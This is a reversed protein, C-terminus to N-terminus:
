CNLQGRMTPLCRTSPKPSRRDLRMSLSTRVGLMNQPTTCMQGTYLSLSFALNAALKQLDDASDIIVTNVGSKEAFVVAQTAHQELWTGFASSGTFDVIKVEPRVALTAALRDAPDEAVLTVLDPNLGYEGLVERAAQVTIALPLVASPHPKVIVPNGTVLSAFLGPWSNWTPFTNCGVLLAVGRPVVHYTSAMRLPERKTPKEWIASGPIRQQEDYGRAVAELGRDLAHAGGAQFAM